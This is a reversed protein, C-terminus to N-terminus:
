GYAVWSTWLMVLYIAPMTRFSQFIGFTAEISPFTSEIAVALWFSLVSGVLFATSIWTHNNMKQTVKLTAILVIISYILTGALWYDGVICQFTIVTILLALIV